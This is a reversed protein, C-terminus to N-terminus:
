MGVLLLNTAQDVDNNTQRLAEEVRDRPFGMDTLTAVLVPSAVPQHAPQQVPGGGGRQRVGQAQGGWLEDLRMQRGGAGPPVHFRARARLLQQEMAEAQQTRQIEITAGLLGPGPDPPGSILPSVLTSALRGLWSPFRCSSLPSCHVALGALLSTATGLLASTSTLCLQLGLMYIMTKSSIPVPGFSASSILPIRLFFPVFLPLLLALPGPPLPLGLFPCILLELSVGLTWGIALHSSYKLSGCRRELVRFFYLLFLSIIANKPDPFVLKSVLIKALKNVLTGVSDVRTSVTFVNRFFPVFSPIHTAIHSCSVGMMLTKTVPTKYFGATSLQSSVGAM